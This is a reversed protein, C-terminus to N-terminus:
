EEAPVPERCAMVFAAGLSTADLYKRQDDPITFSRDPGFSVPEDSRISGFTRQDNSSRYRVLNLRILDDIMAPSLQLEERFTSSFLSKPKGDESVLRDLSAAQNPTLEALIGAFSPLVDAVSDTAANAILNAWRTTMDEDEADENGVFELLPVLTKSPIVTRSLGAKELRKKTKNLVKIQSRARHGRIVDGIWESVEYGASTRALAEAV